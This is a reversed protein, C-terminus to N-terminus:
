AHSKVYKKVVNVLDKPNFPKTIYENAGQRLGWAKDSTQNKSSVMIIPVDKYAPDRRLDRCVQYGNKKPMIIDIVAADFKEIRMKYEAAEGDMVTVTDYGAEKLAMDVLQLESYSDDAILVRPRVSTPALVHEKIPPPTYAPAPKKEETKKEEAKKEIILKKPPDNVMSSYLSVIPGLIGRAVELKTKGTIDLSPLRRELQELFMDILYGRIEQQQNPPLVPIQIGKLALIGLVETLLASSKHMLIIESPQSSALMLANTIVEAISSADANNSVLNSIVRGGELEMVIEWNLSFPEGLFSITLRKGKVIWQHKRDSEM